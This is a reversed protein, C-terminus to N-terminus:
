SSQTTSLLSAAFIQQLIRPIDKLDMCVFARGATIKKTLSLISYIFM